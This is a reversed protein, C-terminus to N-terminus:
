ESDDSPGHADRFQVPEPRLGHIVRILPQIGQDLRAQDNLLVVVRFGSVLNAVREDLLRDIATKMYGASPRQVLSDCSYENSAVVETLGRRMVPPVGLATVCFGDHNQQPGEALGPGSVGESLGEDNEPRQDGQQRRTVLTPDVHEM